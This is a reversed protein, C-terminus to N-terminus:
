RRPRARASSCVSASAPPTARTGAVTKRLPQRPRQAPTSGRDPGSTVTEGTDTERNDEVDGEGKPGAGPYQCLNLAQQPEAGLLPLGSDPQLVPTRRARGRRRCSAIAKWVAAVSAAFTAVGALVSVATPAPPTTVFSVVAVVLTELQMRAAAPASGPAARGRPSVPGLAGPVIRRPPPRRARSGSIAPEGWSLSCHASEQPWTM